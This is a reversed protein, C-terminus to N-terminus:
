EDKAVIEPLRAIMAAMTRAEASTLKGYSGTRAAEAADAAYVYCLAYGAADVVKCGSPTAEVSWPPPHQERFSKM